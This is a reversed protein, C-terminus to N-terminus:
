ADNNDRLISKNLEQAIKLYNIVPIAGFRGESYWSGFPSNARVTDKDFSTLCTFESAGNKKEIFWIQDRRLFDSSMLQVNHSTFLLQANKTNVQPDNFLKIMLEVIHPHLNKEIEDFVLVGGINFVFIMAPFLNFM